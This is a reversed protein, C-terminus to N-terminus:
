ELGVMARLCDLLQDVEDLLLLRWTRSPPFPGALSISGLLEAEKPGRQLDGGRVVEPVLRLGQPDLQGVDALVFKIQLLDRRLDLNRTLLALFEEGEEELSFVPSRAEPQKRVM